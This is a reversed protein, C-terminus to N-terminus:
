KKRRGVKVPCAGKKLRYGKKIRGKSTRGACNSKAKSKRRKAM